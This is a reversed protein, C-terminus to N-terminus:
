VPVTDMLNHTHYHNIQNKAQRSMLFWTALTGPNSDWKVPDGISVTFARVNSKESERELEEMIVNVILRFTLASKTQKQKRGLMKGAKQLKETKLHTQHWKNDSNHQISTTTKRPNRKKLLHTKSGSLGPLNNKIKYSVITVPIDCYHCVFIFWFYTDAIKTEWGIVTYSTSKESEQNIIKPHSWFLCDCQSKNTTTKQNNGDWFIPHEVWIRNLWWIEQKLAM